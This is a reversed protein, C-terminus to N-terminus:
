RATGPLLVGGSTMAPPVVDKPTASLPAPSSAADSGFALRLLDDPHQPKGSQFVSWHLPELQAWSMSCVYQQVNRQLWVPDTSDSEAAKGDAAATATPTNPQPKAATTSSDTAPASVAVVAGDAAMQGAGQMMRNAVTMQVTGSEPAEEVESGTELEAAGQDATNSSPKGGQAELWEGLRDPPVVWVYTVRSPGPETVGGVALPFSRARRVAQKVAAFPVSARHALAM